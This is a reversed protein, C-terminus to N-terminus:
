PSGRRARPRRAADVRQDAALALELAGDVHEAAAALVVRDEDAVGADALRGDDFPRASRMWSPLTGRLARLGGLDVREVHARQDGAGLEAALELRPQLGDERRELLRGPAMRKMSSIWVMTPAPAVWPPEISAEFMSLGASAVPSSRQMPEVVNWSKLCCKSRSRARARRKWFISSVSGVTSSVISIRRPRFRCYSSCWWTVYLSSASSRPPRATRWARAVVAEQRVLRDVDDVLGAGRRLDFRSLSAGSPWRCALLDLVDDGRMAVCGPAARHRGRIALPELREVAIQLEQDEALVLRDAVTTEAMRRDRAPSPVGSLGTPENRNAPGVPTPLVSSALCSAAASPTSNRRKSMLSYM